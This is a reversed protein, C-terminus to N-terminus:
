PWDGNRECIEITDIPLLRLQNLSAGQHCQDSRQDEKHDRLTEEHLANDDRAYFFLISLTATM